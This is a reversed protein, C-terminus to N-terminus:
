VDLEALLICLLVIPLAKATSGPLSPPFSDPEVQSPSWSIKGSASDKCEKSNRRILARKKKNIRRKKKKLESQLNIYCIDVGPNM